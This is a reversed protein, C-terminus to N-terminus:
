EEKAMEKAKAIDRSQSGKDGGCLMLIIIASSRAQSRSLASVTGDGRRIYYLRYGAGFHIRAEYVGDGVPKVDGFNAKEFRRIRFLIQKQAIADRLSSLWKDFTETTRVKIIASMAIMIAMKLWLDIMISLFPLTFAAENWYSTLRSLPPCIQAPKM